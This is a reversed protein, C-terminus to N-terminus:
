LCEFTAGNPLSPALSGVFNTEVGASTLAGDTRNYSASASMGAIDLTILTTPRNSLGRTVNEVPQERLASVPGLFVRFGDFLPVHDPAIVVLNRGDAAAGAYEVHFTQTSQAPIAAATDPDVNSLVIGTSGIDFRKDTIPGMAVGMRRGAANSDVEVLLTGGQDDRYEFTWFRTTGDSGQSNGTQFRESLSAGRTVFLRLSSDHELLVYTEGSSSDKGAGVIEAASLTVASTIPATPDCRASPRAAEDPPQHNTGCAALAVAAVAVAAALAFIGRSWGTLARM